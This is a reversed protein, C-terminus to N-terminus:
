IQSNVLVIKYITRGMRGVEHEMPVWIPPYKDLPVFNQNKLLSAYKAPSINEINYIDHLQKNSEVVAYTARPEEFLALLGDLIPDGQYRVIEVMSELREFVGMDADPDREWIQGYYVIRRIGAQVLLKLCQSCPHMTCYLTAGELDNSFPCNLVANVEAHIVNAYKIPRDNWVQDDEVMGAVMGNYGGSMRRGDKHVLVAGVKTSPDKSRDLAILKAMRLYHLDLKQTKENM